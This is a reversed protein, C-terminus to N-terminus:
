GSGETDQSSVTSCETEDVAERLQALTQSLLRSVHMQSVGIRRAIDTQSMDQYFRMHLISRERAPLAALHPAVAHANTVVEFGGDAYGLHDGLSDSDREPGLVVDLSDPRYSQAAQLTELVEDTSVGLRQAIESPRPARLLDYSLEDIVKAISQRLEQIRRPVRIVWTKDRFHRRIEGTITPVAFGLFHHGLGPQYRDLAKILALYGVQTLDELPEGRQAYRQAIHQALPLYETLLHERLGARAPDTAPLAAYRHLLPELHDFENGRGPNAAEVEAPDRTTTARPEPLVATV